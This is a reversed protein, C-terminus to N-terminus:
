STPAEKPLLEEFDSHLHAYLQVTRWTAPIALLLALIWLLRGNALTWRVFARVRPSVPSM